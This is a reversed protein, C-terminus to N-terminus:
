FGEAEKHPSYVETGLSLLICSFFRKLTSTYSVPGGLGNWMPWQATMLPHQSKVVVTKTLLSFLVMHQRLLHM